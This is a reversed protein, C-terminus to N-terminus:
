LRAIKTALESRGKRLEELLAELENSSLEDRALLGDMRVIAIDLLNMAFQHADRTAKAVKALEASTPVRGRWQEWLSEQVAM